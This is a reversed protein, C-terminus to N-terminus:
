YQVTLTISAFTLAFRLHVGGVDICNPNMPRVGDFIPHSHFLALDADYAM